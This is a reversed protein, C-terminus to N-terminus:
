KEQEAKQIRKAVRVTTLDDLNKQDLKRMDGEYELRKKDKLREVIKSDLAKVRLNEFCKEVRSEVEAITKKQREIRIDQLVLFGNIQDLGPGASGGQQVLAHRQVLAEEIEQHLKRLRENEQALEAQVTM